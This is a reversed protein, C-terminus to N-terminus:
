FCSTETEASAGRAINQVFEFHHKHCSTGDSYSRLSSPNEAQVSPLHSVDNVYIRLWSVSCAIIIEVGWIEAVRILKENREEHQLCVTHYPILVLTARKQPNVCPPHYNRVLTKPCGILGMKLLWATKSRNTGFRRYPIAMRRRAFAWFLTNRM